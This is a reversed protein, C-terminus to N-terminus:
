LNKILRLLLQWMVSTEIQRTSKRLIIKKLKDEGVIEVEKLDSQRVIQQWQELTPFMEHLRIPDRKDPFYIAIADIGDEYIVGSMEMTNGIDLLNLEEFKM